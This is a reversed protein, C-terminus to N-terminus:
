AASGTSGSHYARRAEVTGIDFRQPKLDAREVKATTVKIAALPGNVVVFVAVVAGVAVAAVILAGNAFWKTGCDVARKPTTRGQFHWSVQRVGRM